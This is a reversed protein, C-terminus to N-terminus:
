AHINDAANLIRTPDEMRGCGLLGVVLV